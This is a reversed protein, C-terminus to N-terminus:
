QFGIPGHPHCSQPHCSQALSYSAWVWGSVQLWPQELAQGLPCAHAIASSSAYPQFHSRNKQPEQHGRYAALVDVVHQIKGARQTTSHQQAFAPNLHPCTKAVYGRQQVQVLPLSTFLVLNWSWTLCLSASFISHEHRNSGAQMPQKFPCVDMTIGSGYCLGYIQPYHM